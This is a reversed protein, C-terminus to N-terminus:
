APRMALAARLASFARDQQQRDHNSSGLDASRTTSGRASSAAVETPHHAFDDIVRMGAHECMVELRRKVGSFAGLGQVIAANDIGAADAAVAALAANRVNHEGPVGLTVPGLRRGGARAHAPDPAASSVGTADPARRRVPVPLAGGSPRPREDATTAVTGDAGTAAVLGVFAALV